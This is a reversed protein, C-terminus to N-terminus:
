RWEDRDAKRLRTLNMHYQFREPRYNAQLLQIGNGDKDRMVRTIRLLPAGTTVNLAAAASPEAGAAIIWQEAETAVFGGRELLSILPMAALEENSYTKAIIAPVYSVLYSFPEGELRRLRVSRQVKDGPALGLLDAVDEAAPVLQVEILEVETALGMDKLNELLNDFSGKVVPTTANYVVVTGRGRHRTVLGAAALENLARKVTIRSVNFLGCLDQEGPLIDGLRFEGARIRERLVLYVQHYLPTPLRPDIRVGSLGAAHSADDM